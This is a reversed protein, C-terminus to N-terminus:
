KYQKDKYEEVWYNYYENEWKTGDYYEVEKVCAIFKKADLSKSYGGTLQYGSNSGYTKGPQINAEANGENLIDPSLWGTKVPYGDGDFGMWGVVYKKVVKDTNNKVQITVYQDDLWDTFLGTKIVSLEQKGKLDEMKERREIALKEENQKQYVTKKAVLDSDNLLVKLSDSMVRIAEEYKQDSAFAEAESLVAQKYDSSSASILEQAKKYNVGDSEIVKKLEALAEKPKNQAIFEEGTKFATRSKNLANIEKEVTKLESLMLATKKISELDKSASSFDIKENIFDEKIRQIDEKLFVEVTKEKDLDGKIEQEYVEIADSYKHDLLASKFTSVPDSNNLLRISVFAVLAVVVLTTGALLWKTKQSVTRKALEEGLKAGCKNCFTSDDSVENGCKRCSAM